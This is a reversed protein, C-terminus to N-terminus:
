GMEGVAALALATAVAAATEARLIRRGLTVPLIGAVGATAVEGPTFGGEPGIFLGLTTLPGREASLAAVTAGLGRAREEEWPILAPGTLSAVRCAEAFPLPAAVMPLRGRGSQEAAERVIRRWRELKAAGAEGAVTRGTVIPAFAAAGIETAKQLTYAFHDGKLPAVYLTIALAPETGVPAGAGVRGTARGSALGTLEVPYAQGSGDLLAITAGPRLRLVRGVQHAVEPPLAIEEGPVLPADVFFRHM